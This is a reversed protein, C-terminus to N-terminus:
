FYYHLSAGGFVGIGNTIQFGFGPGSFPGGALNPGLVLDPKFTGPNFDGRARDGPVIIFNLGFEPSLTFHDGFRLQVVMPIEIDFETPDDHNDPIDTGNIGQLYTFRGGLGFDARFPLQGAPNGLKVFYLAELGLGLTAITRTDELDCDPGPCPDTTGPRDQRFTWTGVGVNVGVSLRDLVFYRANIGTLGGLTRIAGVGFTGQLGDGSASASFGSETSVSAEGEVQSGAVETRSITAEPAETATETPATETPATETPAPETPATETPAPEDTVPPDGPAAHATGAAFALVFAASGLLSPVHLPLPRRMRRGYRRGIAARFFWRLM